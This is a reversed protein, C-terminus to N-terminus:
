PFSPGETQTISGSEPVSREIRTHLLSEFNVNSVYWPAIVVIISRDSTKPRRQEGDRFTAKRAVISGARLGDSAECTGCWCPVAYGIGLM